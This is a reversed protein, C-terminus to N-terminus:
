LKEMYDKLFFTQKANFLIISSLFTRTILLLVSFLHIPRFSEGQLIGTLCNSEFKLWSAETTQNKQQVTLCSPLKESDGKKNKVKAGM